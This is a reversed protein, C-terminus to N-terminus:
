NSTLTAWSFLAKCPSSIKKTEMEADTLARNTPHRNQTTTTTTTEPTTTTEQTTTTDPTKTTEPTTTAEQNLSKTELNKTKLNKTGLIMTIEQNV